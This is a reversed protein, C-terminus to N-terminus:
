ILKIKFSFKGVQYAATTKEEAGPKTIKKLSSERASIARKPLSKQICKYIDEFAVPNEFQFNMQLCNLSCMGVETTRWKDGLGFVALIVPLRLTNKAFLFENRCVESQTYEDSVCAVVVKTNKM